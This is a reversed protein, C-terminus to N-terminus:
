PVENQYAEDGWADRAARNYALAAEEETQFTGLHKRNCRAMWGGYGSATVGKYQSSVPKGRYTKKSPLKRPNVQQWLNVGDLDNHCKKCLRRFDSRDRRYEGSINAWEYRKVPDDTGCEECGVPQGQHRTVWDHLGYYGVEDGKWHPSGEGAPSNTNGIMSASRSM